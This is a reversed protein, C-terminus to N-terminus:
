FRGNNVVMLVDEFTVATCDNSARRISVLHDVKLELTKASRKSKFKTLDQAKKLDVEYEGENCAELVVEILDIFVKNNLWVNVQELPMIFFPIVAAELLRLSLNQDNDIGQELDAIRGVMYRLAVSDIWGPSTLLTYITSAPRKVAFKKGASVVTKMFRPGAMVDDTDSDLAARIFAQANEDSPEYSLKEALKLVLDEDGDYWSATCLTEKWVVKTGKKSFFRLTFFNDRTDINLNLERDKGVLMTTKNFTYSIENPLVPGIKEKAFAMFVKDDKFSEIQEPTATGSWLNDSSRSGTKKLMISVQPVKKSKGLGMTVTVDLDSRKYPFPKTVATVAQAKSKKAKM